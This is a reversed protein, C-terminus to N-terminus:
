SMVDSHEIKFNSNGAIRLLFRFAQPSNEKVVLYADIRGPARFMEATLEEISSYEEAEKDVERSIERAVALTAEDVGTYRFPIEQGPRGM